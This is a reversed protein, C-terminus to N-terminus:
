RDHILDKFKGALFVACTLVLGGLSTYDVVRAVENSINFQTSAIFGALSIAGLFTAGNECREWLSHGTEPQTEEPEREM